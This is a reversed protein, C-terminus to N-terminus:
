RFKYCITRVLPADPTVMPNKEAFQPLHPCDPYFEPEFCLASQSGYPKGDDRASIPNQPNFIYNGSYFQFAPYDTYLEMRIMGDDSDVIAFPKTEDGAILFPHDYGLALLMQEDHMFDRGVTKPETKFDFATKHVKRVEGTPISDADCPLFEDSDFWVTHNLASSNKGNLNFYAHNTICSWCKETCRGIYNVLLSNDDTVTYIVTLTYEGPFGQDGDKSKLEYTLSNKSEKILSFRRKDFGEAGGHLTHPDKSNLLYKKGDIEFSNGAIRNAFRGITANFYCNQQSWLAPDKVGLLVERPDKEGSVPVKISILTAGWDMVTVSFGKANSITKLKPDESYKVAAEM